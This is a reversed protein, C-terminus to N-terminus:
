ANEKKTEAPKTLTVFEIAKNMAGENEYNGPSAKAFKVYDALNLINQLITRADAHIESTRLNSMLQGTTQEFANVRFRKEIYARLIDTLESYYTKIQNNQWHQKENLQKLKLLTEEHLSLIVAPQAPAPKKKRKKLFIFGLIAFVVAAGIVFWYWNNKLQEKLAYKEDIIDKIDAFAKTTDVKVGEVKLTLEDTSFTDTGAIFQFSPIVFQGTDFATITFKRNEIFEDPNNSAAPHFKNIETAELIEIKSNLTDIEPWIINTNGSYEIALLFTVQEGIRIKQIDPHLIKEDINIKEESPNLQSYVRVQSNGKLSFFLLVFIYLARLMM